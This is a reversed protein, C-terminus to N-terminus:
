EETSGADIIRVLLGLLTEREERTLISLMRAEHALILAEAQKLRAAGESTLHLELVRKDARSPERRVLGDDILATLLPVMNARQVALVRGLRTQSIGPNAGVVSLIAFLVPRLGVVERVSAGFAQSMVGSARRLRYGVLSDLFHTDIDERAPEIDPLVFSSREAKSM